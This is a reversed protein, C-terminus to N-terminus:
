GKRYIEVFTFVNTLTIVTRPSATAIFLVLDMLARACTHTRLSILHRNEEPGRFPQAGGERGENTQKKNDASSKRQELEQRESEACLSETEPPPPSPDWWHARVHSQLLIIRQTSQKRLNRRPPPARRQHERSIMQSRMLCPKVTRDCIQGGGGGGEAPGRGHSKNSM